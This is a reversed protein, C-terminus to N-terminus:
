RKNPNPGSTQWREMLKKIKKNGMPAYPDQKILNEAWEGPCIDYAACGECARAKVRELDHEDMPIKSHFPTKKLIGPNVRPNFRYFGESFCIPYEVHLTIGLEEAKSAAKSISDQLVKRGPFLRPNKSANGILRPYVLRVLSFGIDALFELTEPLRKYNQKLLVIDAFINEAADKGFANLINKAGEITQKFSGKSRTLTDHIHPDHSLISIGAENLGSEVLRESFGKYSLMRGNTELQVKEFGANKAARIIDFLDSRITPEGGSIIIRKRTSAGTTEIAKLAVKTRLDEPYLEYPVPCHICNNNCSYGLPLIRNPEDM